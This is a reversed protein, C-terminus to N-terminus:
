DKTVVTIVTGLARHAYRINGVSVLGDRDAILPYRRRCEQPVKNDTFVDQVKRTGGKLKIRDGDRWQRAHLSDTDVGPGITSVTVIYKGFEAAVGEVLRLDPIKAAAPQALARIVLFEGNSEAVYEGGPFTIACPSGILCRLQEIILHSIDSLESDLNNKIWQRLIRRQMAAPENLLEQAPLIKRNALKDSAITNLYDSDDSATQSLRIISERIASNFRKEIYPLLETRVSNRAYKTLKNSSDTRTHIEFDALYNDVVARSTDLLPRIIVGRRYPIGKLGDIGTGRIINLLVTEVVDDRNHATAILDLGKTQRTQELFEYRVQRAAQQSSTKLEHKRRPVDISETTLPVKLTHCLEAVYEADGDSEAGRFQHNLHGAEVQYGLNVLCHLLAVSDPGGSVAVLVKESRSVLKHRTITEAVSATLNM